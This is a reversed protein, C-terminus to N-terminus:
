LRRETFRQRRGQRVRGQRAKCQGALKTEVGDQFLYDLDVSANAKGRGQMVKDQWADDALSRKKVVEVEGTINRARRERPYGGRGRVRGRGSWSRSWSKVGSSTIAWKTIQRSWDGKRGRCSILWPTRRGALEGDISWAVDSEARSPPFSVWAKPRM